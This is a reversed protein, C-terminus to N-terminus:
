SGRLSALEGPPEVRVWRATARTLTEGDADRIEGEAFYSRGENRVLRGSLVLPM